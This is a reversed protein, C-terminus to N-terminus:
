PMDLPERDDAFGTSCPIRHEPLGNVDAAMLYKMIESIASALRISASKGTPTALSLRNGVYGFDGSKPRLM